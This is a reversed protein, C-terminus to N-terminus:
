DTGNTTPRSNLLPSADAVDAHDVVLRTAGTLDFPYAEGADDAEIEFPIGAATLVTKALEADTRTRYAGVAIM